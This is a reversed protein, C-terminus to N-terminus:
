LALEGGGLPIVQMIKEEDGTLANIYILFDTDGLKGRFEYALAETLDELPILTLRQQVVHLRHSLRKRAEEMSLKPAPIKRQTHSMLYGLAEFGAIEGTDLAVQVKILDSYVRIGNEKHVFLVFASNEEKVAYTPELSTYGRQALFDAARQRAQELGLSGKGPVRDSSMWVVHGGTRCVDLFYQPGPGGQPAVQLSYAPIKGTAENRVRATYTAGSASPVFAVAKAMAEEQTVTKGTVGVPKRREIHDSFPGDYILAPYRDMEKEIGKFSDHVDLTTAAMRAAGAATGRSWTIGQRLSSVELARVQEALKAAQGRLSNLLEWDGDSIADGRGVKKGLVYAIDATQKLFRSTRQMEAVPLPLRALNSQASNAQHWLDPFVASSQLPSSLVLGKGLLVEVNSIGDALEVLSRQREVELSTEAQRRLRAQGVGWAASAVLLGLLLYVPWKQRM